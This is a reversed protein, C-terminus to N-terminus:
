PLFLSIKRQGLFLLEISRDSFGIQHMIARKQSDAVEDIM